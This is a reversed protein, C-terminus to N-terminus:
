AGLCTGPAASASGTDLSLTVMPVGRKMVFRGQGKESGWHMSSYTLGASMNVPPSIWGRHSIAEKAECRPSMIKRKSGGFAHKMDHEGVGLVVLNLQVVSGVLVFVEKSMHGETLAIRM